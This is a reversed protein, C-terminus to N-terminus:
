FPEDTFADMKDIGFMNNLRKIYLIDDMVLQVAESCKKDIRKTLIVMSRDTHIHVPEDLNIEDLIKMLGDFREMYEDSEIFKIDGITSVSVDAIDLPKGAKDCGFDYIGVFIGCGKDYLANLAIRVGVTGADDPDYLLYIKDAYYSLLNAQYNSMKSGLLAVTNKHGAEFMRMCNGVSEVVYVEGTDVIEQSAKDINYLNTSTSFRGKPRHLWKPHMNNKVARGTWGVLRGDPDRVPFICRDKDIGKTGFGMEFYRLTSPEFGRSQFYTHSKLYFKSIASDSFTENTIAEDLHVENVDSDFDPEGHDISFIDLMPIKNIECVRELAKNFGCKSGSQLEDLKRVLDFLNGKAPCSWCGYIKKESNISFSPSKDEKGVYQLHFPCRMKYENGALTYDVKYHDLIKSISAKEYIDAVARKFSADSM